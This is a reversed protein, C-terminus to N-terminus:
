GQTEPRKVIKNRTSKLHVNKLTTSSLRPPLLLCRLHLLLLCCVFISCHKCFGTLYYSNIKVEFMLYALPPLTVKTQGEPRLGSAIAVLNGFPALNSGPKM